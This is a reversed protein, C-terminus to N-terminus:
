CLVAYFSFNSIHLKSAAKACPPRFPPEILVEQYFQENEPPIQLLEFGLFFLNRFGIPVWEARVHHCCCQKHHHEQSQGKTPFDHPSEEHQSDHHPRHHHRHKDDDDDELVSDIPTMPCICYADAVDNVIISLILVLLVLVRM